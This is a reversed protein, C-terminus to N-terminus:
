VPRGSEVWGAPAWIIEYQVFEDQVIATIPMNEGMTVTALYANHENLYTRLASLARQGESVIAENGLVNLNSIDGGYVYPM